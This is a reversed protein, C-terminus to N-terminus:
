NLSQFDKLVSSWHYATVERTLEVEQNNLTLVRLYHTKNDKSFLNLSKAMDTSLTKAFKIEYAAIENGYECILDVEVGSSTRYFYCQYFGNHSAFRKICEMIVMNEFIHGRESSRLFRESSDIGLLYCLLGTDVFYLKPSKVLRKSHNSHYPKLLYIIYTSELITLWDKATPQSIGCEKAIEAINLLSGARAALLGIFTQFRGLDTIARINRIDREVYTSLYSGYWLNWDLNPTVFFEPYFGQITQLVCSEVAQSAHAHGPISVVEEWSFPYLHFIAVRGALSEKVGEMIQFTQSGTLIYQGYERRNKDVIIKIYPLLGPAYQIEDIVVPAAYQSLFLEPDENALQRHIPDDLTVYRYKKLAEQLLTSKGAQRPGTVLCVPFQSLAKSLRKEIVRSYYPNMVEIYGIM